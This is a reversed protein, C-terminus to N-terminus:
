ENEKRWVYYDYYLMLSQYLMNSMQDAGRQTFHVYDSSALAPKSEVWRKMSGEGGMANFMDWFAAGANNAATKLSDVIVSLHPYTQMKGDIKTSMDSPGIFLIAANPALKHLYNIQKEINARYQSISKDNKLYPVTNGGYQLIIMRVNEKSYYDKLQEPDISRFITGSCGRMAVNDMRVGKDNDLMVGYITQDGSFSFTVKSSSDPLSFRVTRVSKSADLKKKTGKYTYSSKEGSSLITLRNFYRSPGDNSKVPSVTATVTTDFHFSQGMVGYRNDEGRMDASGYVMHREPESSSSVSVSLNYYSSRLPLLGPGGGGFREQLRNRITGTVRDEEIQSDGYHIIRMPHEMAEDLSAFFSDFLEVSDDPFHFRAPNTRFFELYDNRQAEIIAAMRQALLEEPSLVPEPEEIKVVMLDEISPFDLKLRGLKVGGDPIAAGVTGLLVFVAVIFLVIRYPKM